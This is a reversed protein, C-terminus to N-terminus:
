LLELVQRRQRFPLLGGPQEGLNELAEAAPTPTGPAVGSPAIDFPASATLGAVAVQVVHRGVGIGPVLFDFTFDGQADTIVSGGPTVEITGITASNVNTFPRFGTGTLTIETGPPGAAASLQVTPGPM